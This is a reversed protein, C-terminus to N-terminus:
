DCLPLIVMACGQDSSGLGSVARSELCLTIGGALDGKKQVVCFLCKRRGDGEEQGEPVLISSYLELVLECFVKQVCVHEQPVLM